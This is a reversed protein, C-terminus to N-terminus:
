KKVLSLTNIIISNNPTRLVPACDIEVLYYIIRYKVVRLKCQSTFFFGSFIVVARACARILYVDAYTLRALFKKVHRKKKETGAGGCNFVASTPVLRAAAAASTM